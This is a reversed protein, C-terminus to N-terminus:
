SFPNSNFSPHTASSKLTVREGYRGNKYTHLKNEKIKPTLFSSSCLQGTFSKILLLILKIELFYFSYKKFQFNVFSDIFSEEM